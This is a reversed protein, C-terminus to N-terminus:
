PATTLAYDFYTRELDGDLLEPRREVEERLRRLLPQLTEVYYRSVVIVTREGDPRRGVLFVKENSFVAGGRTSYRVKIEDLDSFAVSRREGGSVVTVGDDSLYTHRQHISRAVLLPVVVLLLAMVATMAWLGAATGGAEGSARRATQVCPVLFVVAAALLIWMITSRQPLETGLGDM